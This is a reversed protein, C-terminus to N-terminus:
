ADVAKWVNIQLDDYGAYRLAAIRGNGNVVTDGVIMVPLDSATLIDEGAHVRKVRAWLYADFTVPHGLQLDRLNVTAPHWDKAAVRMLWVKTSLWRGRPNRLTYLIHRWFSKM